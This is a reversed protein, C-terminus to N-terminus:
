EKMEILIIDYYWIRDPRRQDYIPKDIIEFLPHNDSFVYLNKIDHPSILSLISEDSSVGTISLKESKICFIIAHWKSVDKRCNPSDLDLDIVYSMIHEPTEDVSSDNINLHDMNM